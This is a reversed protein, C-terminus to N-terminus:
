ENRLIVLAERGIGSYALEVENKGYHMLKDRWPDNFYYGESDYGVLLLCHFPAIWTHTKKTDPVTWEVHTSPRNMDITGWFVVPIDNDIYESCLTSIPVDKLTYATLGEPALSDVAKKIVEPYCGWGSSNAPNGPYQERPDCAYWEGYSIYPSQGMDLHTYIFEYPTIDVGLYQLLMVASVAECGNPYSARQNIYPADIVKADEPINEPSVGKKSSQVQPAPTQEQTQEPAQQEPQLPQTNDPIINEPQVPQSYVPAEPVPTEYVPIEYEPTIYTNPNPIPIYSEDPSAAASDGPSFTEGGTIASLQAGTRVTPIQLMLSTAVIFTVTKQTCRSILKM